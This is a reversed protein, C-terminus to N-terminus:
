ASLDGALRRVSRSREVHTTEETALGLNILRHLERKIGDACPLLVSSTVNFLWL